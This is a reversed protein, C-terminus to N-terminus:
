KVYTDLYLQVIPTHWELQLVRDFKGEYEKGDFIYESSHSRLMPSANVRDENFYSHVINNEDKSDNLVTIMDTIDGDTIRQFTPVCGEGYGFTTNITTSLGYQDKISQYEPTPRYQQIDFVYLIDQPITSKLSTSWKYLINQEVEICDGCASRGIYLNFSSDNSIKADLAEKDLYYMKPLYINKFMYEEFADFEKFLQRNEAKLKGYVTQRILKGRRFFCIAPMLSKGTYIDYKNNGPIEDVNVIKFDIKYRNFFEKVVPRFDTWCGCGENYVLLVFNQKKDITDILQSYNLEGLKSLDTIDNKFERGFDLAIKSKDIEGDRCSSLLLAPVLLLFTALKKM